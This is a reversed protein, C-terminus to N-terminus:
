LTNRIDWEREVTKEDMQSKMGQGAVMEIVFALREKPPLVPVRVVEYGLASYDRALWEDLLDATVDDEPHFCEQLIENPNLGALRFYALCDPLARDLFIVKTAKLGRERELQIDKIVSAFTTESVRIEDLTRGRAIEMESHKRGAEPVSLYGRAAVLDILTTKGSCPAGTIVHWNTQIRFPTSLLDPDLEKTTSNQRPIDIM